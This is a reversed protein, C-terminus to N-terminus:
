ALRVGSRVAEAYFTGSQRARREHAAPTEIVVEFPISDGQWRIPRWAKLIGALEQVPSQVMDKVIILDV